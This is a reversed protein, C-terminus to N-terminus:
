IVTADVWGGESTRDFVCLCRMGGRDKHSRFNAGASRYVPHTYVPNHTIFTFLPERVNCRHATSTYNFHVVCRGVCM